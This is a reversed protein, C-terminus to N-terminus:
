LGTFLSGIKLQRRMSIHYVLHFIHLINCSILELVKGQKLCHKLKTEQWKCTQPLM